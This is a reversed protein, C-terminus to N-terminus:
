INYRIDISARFFNCLVKIYVNIYFHYYCDPMYNYFESSIQHVYVLCDITVTIKSVIVVM